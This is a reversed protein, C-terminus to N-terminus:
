SGLSLWRRAEQRGNPHLSPLMGKSVESLDILHDVGEDFSRKDLKCARMVMSHPIVGKDLMEREHSKQPKFEGAMARGIIKLIRQANAQVQGGHMYEGSFRLLADDSARLLQEAWAVHELTIVPKDPTDWVALVGAVRECKECSRTLLAKAFPSKAALRQRDFEVLLEGLRTEATPDISIMSVQAAHQEDPETGDGIPLVTFGCLPLANKMAEAAKTASEPLEWATNVRRPVVGSQGFAFLFRGLLGDEINSIGMAEGLKEPTAFGLLSLVPNQLIRPAIGGQQAAKVRTHYEARSVSFLQLLTGALEILYPPANGNNIASFFHAIEDLACLTGTKSNLSDELGPGSAPKGIVKGRTARVLAMAISRPSEKGEGTGAVGCGYLNLRMGSPLGYVGNCSAAMGILASMTCLDPQPKTSVALASQVVDHMVGRFPPPFAVPPAVDEVPEIPDVPGLDEFLLRTWDEECLWHKIFTGNDYVFPHGDGALALYANMSSSARFPTQCRLKGKTPLTKLAERVSVSSGDKLELETDLRLDHAGIVLTGDAKATVDIGLGLKKAAREVTSPDPTLIRHTDLRGGPTVEFVQLHVPDIGKGAGPKGCFVLRGLVFVSQDIITTPSYAVTEGTKSSIKPKKWVIGIELARALISTRLREIDAPDDVQLWTHGNGGGASKGGYTVRASSSHARLRACARVGPLLKELEALWEDYDEGAYWEPTHEDVDRDLLVWSSPTTHEKFRGLAKYSEGDYKLQVPWVQNLNNRAIKLKLFEKESLLLFTEGVPVLPFVSNIIAAHSDEAVMALVGQLTEMDPVHYQVAMGVSISVASKKVIKGDADLSFKKGLPSGPDRVVTIIDHNTNM